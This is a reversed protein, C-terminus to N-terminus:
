LAEAPSLQDAGLRDTNVLVLQLRAPEVAALDHKTGPAVYVVDGPALRETRGDVTFDLSGELLTAVLAKPSSHDPVREGAALLLQLVRLAENNTVVSTARGKAPLPASANVNLSFTSQAASTAPVSVEQTVLM